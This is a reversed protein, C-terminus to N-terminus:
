ARLRVARRTSDTTRVSASSKRARATPMVSAYPNKGGNEKRLARSPRQKHRLHRELQQHLFLNMSQGLGRHPIVSRRGWGKRVCARARACKRLGQAAVRSKPSLVVEGSRALKLVDCGIGGGVRVLAHTAYIPRVWGTCAVGEGGLHASSTCSSSTRIAAWHSDDCPSSRRKM